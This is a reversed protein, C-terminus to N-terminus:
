NTSRYYKLLREICTGVVISIDTPFQWEEVIKVAIAYHDSFGREDVGQSDSPRGFKRLKVNKKLEEFDLIQPSNANIGFKRESKLMGKSVMIQDLLNFGDLYFTGRAKVAFSWMLNYVRPATRMYSKRRIQREWLM